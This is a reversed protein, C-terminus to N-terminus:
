SIITKILEPIDRETVRGFWLNDPMVVVSTGHSCNDLCGSSIVRISPDIGAVAMKLKYKLDESGKQACCERGDERNNTCVLVLKRYTKKMPEM